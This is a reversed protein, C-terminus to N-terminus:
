YLCEVLVGNALVNRGLFWPFCLELERLGEIRCRTYICCAAAFSSRPGRLPSLFLYAIVRLTHSRILDDSTIIRPRIVGNQTRANKVASPSLRLQITNYKRIAAEAM